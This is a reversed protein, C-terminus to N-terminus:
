QYTCAPFLCSVKIHHGNGPEKIIEQGLGAKISFPTPLCATYLERHLLINPSPRIHSSRIHSIKRLGRIPQSLHDFTKLYLTLLTPQYNFIPFRHSPFEVVATITSYKIKKLCLINYAQSGTLLTSGIWSQSLIAM